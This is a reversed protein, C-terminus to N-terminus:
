VLVKTKLAQPRIKYYLKVAKQDSVSKIIKCGSFTTYSNIIVYTSIKKKERM